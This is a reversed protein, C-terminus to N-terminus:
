TEASEKQRAKKRGEEKEKGHRLVAVDQWKGDGVAM